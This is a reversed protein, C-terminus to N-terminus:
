IKYKAEYELQEQKIKEIVQEYHVLNIKNMKYDNDEDFKIEYDTQLRQQVGIIIVESDIETYIEIHTAGKNKLKNINEIIDNIEYLTYNNINFDDIRIKIEKNTIKM